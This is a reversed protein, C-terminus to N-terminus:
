QGVNPGEGRLWRALPMVVAPQGNDVFWSDVVYRSAEGGKALSGTEEIQASYHEFVLFRSRLVRDLVRHYHLLGQKEILQLLRTTTKSHDICDMKGHVGDDAYNGGRDASIATQQGAWGLMLGVGVSIAQREEAADRAGGLLMGLVRLQADSYIVDAQTLCGYNFCVTVREDAGANLACLLLVAALFKM